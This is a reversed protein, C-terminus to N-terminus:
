CFMKEFIIECEVRAALVESTFMDDDIDINQTFIKHALDIYVFYVQTYLIIHCFYEQFIAEM